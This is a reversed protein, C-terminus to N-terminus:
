IGLHDLPDPIPSSKLVASRRVQEGNPCSHPTRSSIFPAVCLLHASDPDM